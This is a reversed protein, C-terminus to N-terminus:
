SVRYRTLSCMLNFTGVFRPTLVLAGVWSAAPVSPGERCLPLGVRVFALCWSSAARVKTDIQLLPFLPLLSMSEVKSEVKGM